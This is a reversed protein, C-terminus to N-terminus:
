GDGLEVLFQFKSVLRSHGTNMLMLMMEHIPLEAYMSRIVALDDACKSLHPFLDSIPSISEGHQHFKFPPSHLDPVVNRKSIILRCCRGAM